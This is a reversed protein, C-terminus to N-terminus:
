PAVVQRMAIRADLVQPSAARRTSDILVRSEALQKALDGQSAPQQRLSHEVIAVRTNVAALTSDQLNM